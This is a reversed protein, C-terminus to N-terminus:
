NTVTSLSKWQSCLLSVDSLLVFRSDEINIDMQLDAPVDVDGSDEKIEVQPPDPLNTEDAFDMASIVFTGVESVFDPVYFGTPHSLKM